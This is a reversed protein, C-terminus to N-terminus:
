CIFFGSPIVEKFFGFSESFFSYYIWVDEDKMKERITVTQNNSKNNKEDNLSDVESENEETLIEYKNSPYKTQTAKQQKTQIKQNNTVAKSNSDSSCVFGYIHRRLQETVEYPSVENTLEQGTKAIV